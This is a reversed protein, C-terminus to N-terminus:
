CRAPPPTRARRRPRLVAHRGGCRRACVRRQVRRERQGARACQPRAHSLGVGAVRTRWSPTAPRAKKVIGLLKITYGLQQPSSAHGARHHAPHRGRPDAEAEGLVRAGALGPHRDQAACRLRRHGPRRRRRPTARSRPTPWCTRRLGGRGAEHPHPHLQLHRQRHRLPAHHPQRRLRRAAGQHHPHRRVRQGRLLSQHRAAQGRRVIGRRARLALAKNATVVPKGLKLATLIM